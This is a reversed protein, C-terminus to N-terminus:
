EGGARNTGPMDAHGSTGHSQGIQNRHHGILGREDRDQSAAFTGDDDRFWGSGDRNGRQNFPSLTSWDHNAYRRGCFGLPKHM